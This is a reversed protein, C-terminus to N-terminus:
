TRVGQLDDILYGRVRLFDRAVLYAAATVQWREGRREVIAHDQLRALLSSLQPRPLPLVAGLVDLSVGNHLLLSHLLIASDEEKEGSLVPEVPMEAVWVAAEAETQMDNGTSEDQAEDPEDPEDRLRRRWCDLALGLNGHCHAALQQLEPSIETSEQQDTSLILKGTKVNLFRLAQRKSRPALQAFLRALRVGDFAQLTLVRSTPLPYIHQLYSWAWSDCGILGPATEGHAVRELLQRVLLFGRPHRLYCHELNPLFWSQDSAPWTSCWDQDQDVIQRHGPSAVSQVQSRKAWAALIKDVCAHPPKIVFTVGSQAAEDQRRSLQEDFLAAPIQWDVPSVLHQLRGESLSKLDDEAKMPAQADARQQDLFKRISAWGRFAADTGSFKPKQYDALDVFQWLPVPENEPNNNQSTM